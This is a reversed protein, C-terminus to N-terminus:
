FCPGVPIPLLGLIVYIFAAGALLKNLGQPSALWGMKRVILALISMLLALFCASLLASVAAVLHTHRDAFFGGHVLDVLRWGFALPLARFTGCGPVVSFVITNALAVSVVLVLFHIKGQM